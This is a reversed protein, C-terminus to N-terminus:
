AKSARPMFFSLIREQRIKSYSFLVPRRAKIQM